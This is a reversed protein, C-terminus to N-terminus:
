VSGELVRGNFAFEGGGDKLEIDVALLHGVQDALARGALNAEAAICDRFELGGRGAEVRSLSPAGATLDVGHGFGTRVRKRSGERPIESVVAEIGGVEHNVSHQLVRILLEAGGEATGDFFVAHMKEGVVFILLLRLGDGKVALVGTEVNWVQGRRTRL